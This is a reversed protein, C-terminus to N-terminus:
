AGYHAGGQHRRRQRSAQAQQRQRARCPDCTVFGATPPRQGCRRCVGQDRRQATRARARQRRDAACAPCHWRLRQTRPDIVSPAGCAVCRGEARRWATRDQDREACRQCQARDPLAPAQRCRRCVRVDGGDKRHARCREQYRCLGCLVHSDQPHRQGGCRPCRGAARRREVRARQTARQRARREPARIAAMQRADERRQDLCRRCRVYGTLAPEQGCSVCQGARKRAQYRAREQARTRRLLAAHCPACRLHPPAPPAQGCSVCLGTDRRRQWTPPPRDSPHAM